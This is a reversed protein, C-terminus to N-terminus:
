SNQCAKEAEMQKRKNNRCTGHFNYSIVYWMQKLLCLRHFTYSRYSRDQSPLSKREDLTIDANDVNSYWSLMCLLAMLTAATECHTRNQTNRGRRCQYLVNLTNVTSCYFRNWDFNIVIYTFINVQYWKVFFIIYILYVSIISIGSLYFLLRLFRLSIYYAHTIHWLSIFFCIHM